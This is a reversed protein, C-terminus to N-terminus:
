FVGWWYRCVNPGFCNNCSLKRLCSEASTWCKCFSILDKLAFLKGPSELAVVLMLFLLSLCHCFFFLFFLTYLSRDSEELGKIARPGRALVWGSMIFHWSRAACVMARWAGLALNVGRVPSTQSKAAQPVSFATRSRLQVIHMHRHHHPLPWLLPRVSLSFAAEPRYLAQKTKM